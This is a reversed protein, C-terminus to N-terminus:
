DMRLLIEDVLAQRREADCHSADPDFTVLASAMAPQDLAANVSAPDPVEVSSPDFTEAIEALRQEMDLLISSAYNLQQTTIDQFQLYNISQFLEDRLRARIGAAQDDDSRDLEDLDDVMNLARDLGDLLGTAAVETASTVEELKASTRHLKETTAQELADRSSRLTQLMGSIENYARRLVPPLEASGIRADNGAAPHSSEAAPAHPMAMPARQEVVPTHETVAPARSGTGTARGNGLPGMERLARDLLESM